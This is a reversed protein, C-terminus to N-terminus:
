RRSPASPDTDHSWAYLERYAGVHSARQEWDLRALPRRAGARTRARGVDPSSPQTSASAAKREDMARALESLYRQLDPDGVAPVQESWPRSPRPVMPGTERRIRTDIVSALDRAGILSRGRIARHAVAAVDLDAAEAARMEAVAM